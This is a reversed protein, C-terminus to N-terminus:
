DVWEIPSINLDSSIKKVEPANYGLIKSIAELSKQKDYLKIKVQEVEIQTPIALGAVINMSSRKSTRTEISEICAKVEEPLEEFEKKDIWSNHLHAISSFALKKHENLIMEISLGVTEETKEKLKSIYNQIKANRLLKSAAASAGQDSKSDYSQQYAKTGNMCLLYAKCFAKMKDTLKPKKIPPKSKKKTM